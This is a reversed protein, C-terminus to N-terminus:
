MFSLRSRFRTDKPIRQRHPMRFARNLTAFSESSASALTNPMAIHIGGRGASCFSDQPSHAAPHFNHPDWTSMFKHYPLPPRFTLTLKALILHTTMPLYPSGSNLTMSEIAHLHESSPIPNLFSRYASTTASTTARVKVRWVEFLRVCKVWWGWWVHKHKWPQLWIPCILRFYKM